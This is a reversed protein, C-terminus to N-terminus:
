EIMSKEHKHVSLVSIIAFHCAIMRHGAGGRHLAALSRPQAVEGGFSAVLFYNILKLLDPAVIRAVLLGTDKNQPVVRSTRHSASCCDIKLVAVSAAFVWVVAHWFVGSAGLM